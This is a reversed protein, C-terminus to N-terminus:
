KFINRSYSNDKLGRYHVIERYPFDFGYSCNLVFRITNVTTHPKGFKKFCEAPAKVANFISARYLLQESSVQNKKMKIKEPIVFGHDGQFVIIAKPDKKSLYRTFDLIEKLACQYSEKYGEYINKNEARPNCNKTVNFPVHPLMLDIFIFKSNNDRKNKEAYNSYYSLRLDDGEAFVYYVFKELPTNYYITRVLVRLKKVYKPYICNWPQNEWDLCPRHVNGVWTFKSGLKNLLDPLKISKENQYMMLPFFSKKNIYPSTLETTPYDIKMISAITLFSNNYSAYSQDVYTLDLEKLDKKAQIENIISIKAALELSMMSDMIIYYINRNNIKNKKITLNIEESNIVNQIIQVENNNTKSNWVKNLYKPYSFVSFVINIIAFILISRCFFLNFKQSRLNSIMICLWILFLILVSSYTANAQHFITITLLNHLPSFLFLICFGFCSLLFISRPQIKFIKIIVFHLFISVLILSFIVIILSEIIIFIEFTALEKLNHPKFFSVVPILFVVFGSFFEKLFYLFFNKKIIL